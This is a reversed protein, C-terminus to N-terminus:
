SFRIAYLYPYANISSGSNQRGYLKITTNGGVITVVQQYTEKGELGETTVANNRAPNTGDAFAAQRYGTGNAQWDICGVVLWRGSPLALTSLETATNNIVAVVASNNTSYVTDGTNQRQLKESSM